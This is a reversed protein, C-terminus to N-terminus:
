ELLGQEMLFERAVKEPSQDEYDVLYNMKRMQEDTIKGGLQNLIGELEPYAKLTENRLLPAGQYPPFLNKTDELAVLDLEEMYSDTAYADIIDVEGSIIAEQRLGPDMTNVDSINLDYVDQMGVYGDYRDKFELTFGATLQEEVQKLDEMTELNYREAIEKTTAITYTNNYDMPKLYAMDFQEKMGEKAQQYVEKEKQSTANEELHTVIATGSFEPYIDISGQELANFVFATKGLNPKLQVNLDTDAEILQKYMNMLIAPESGLKGGIVIDEQKDSQIIFPTVVILVAILLMAILSKVGAKKSIREFGRLIGDLVIALLAAPIAGLLILHVDAGRDLGLLIIEGLGGAGILAALTTTGVILVMSTRVGAMMVPMAIPLEIKVLRKFSNMGMGTAAEIYAQDVEKIGTYSNRLIPLLGYATLAIVAPLTGIGFFPILFALVALSPITQLIATLGIIPEAVRPYRTLILGLPVAISIAIILSILSIQLHEWITEVLMGQRNQFVTIFDNM